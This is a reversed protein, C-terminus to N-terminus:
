RAVGLARRRAGGAASSARGAAGRSPTPRRGGRRSLWATAVFLVGGLSWSAGGAVLCALLNDREAEGFAVAGLYTGGYVTMAAGLGWTAVLVLWRSVREGCPRVLAAVGGVAAGGGGLV